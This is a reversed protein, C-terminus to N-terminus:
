PCKVLEFVEKEHMANIEAKCAQEWKMWDPRKQAEGVNLPELEEPDISAALLSIVYDDFPFLEQASVPKAFAAFDEEDSADQPAPAAAPPAKPIQVGRAIAPNRALGTATGKGSQIDRIYQSPKRIRAGEHTQLRPIQPTVPAKVPASGKSPDAGAAPKSANAPDIAEQDGIDEGADHGD